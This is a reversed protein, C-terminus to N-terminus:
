AVRRRLLFGFVGLGLLALSSPEPVPAFSFSLIADNATPISGFIAGPPTEEGLYPSFQAALDSAASHILGGEATGAMADSGVVYAAGELANMETGSDWIDGGSLMFDQAVFMGATNFLEVAVPDENGIFSDNSPVAMSFFSLYRNDTPDLSLVIVAEAGPPLIGPGFGGTTATAVATAVTGQMGMAESMLGSGDGLEAVAEIGASAAGGADFLDVSGDHGILTFPSFAIGDAPALNRITVQVDASRAPAAFMAAALAAGAFRAGLAWVSLRKM